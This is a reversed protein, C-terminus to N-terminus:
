LLIPLWIKFATAAILVILAYRLYKVNIRASIRSGLPAGLLSGMVTFIVPLLPIHGAGIKGIVGGVASIFVIALSSAITTRTPIKLLTLMIPILIFAGGAGVIGSVLGVALASLVALPKNFSLGSGEERRKGRVPILMLVVAIVALVGYIVNITDGPMYKSALGGILSGALVGGGM